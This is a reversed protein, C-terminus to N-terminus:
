YILNKLTIEHPVWVDLVKQYGAKKLHCLVTKHRHKIKPSTVVAFTGTKSFIKSLKISNEFSQDVLALHWAYQYQMMDIFVVFKKLM